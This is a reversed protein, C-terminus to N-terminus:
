IFKKKYFLNIFKIKNNCNLIIVIFLKDGFKGKELLHGIVLTIDKM